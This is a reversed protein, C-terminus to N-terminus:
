VSKALLYHQDLVDLYEEVQSLNHWVKTIKGNVYIAMTAGDLIRFELPKTCIKEIAKKM